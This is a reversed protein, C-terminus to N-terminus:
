GQGYKIGNRIRLPKRIRDAAAMRNSGSRAYGGRGAVIDDKRRRVGSPDEDKTLLLDNNTCLGPSPM